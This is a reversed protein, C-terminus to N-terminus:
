GHVPVSGPRDGQHEPDHSNWRGPPQPSQWRAHKTCQQWSVITFSSKVFTSVVDARLELVVMFSKHPYVSPRNYRIKQLTSQVRCTLHHFMKSTGSGSSRHNPTERPGAPSTSLTELHSMLMRPSRPSGPFRQLVLDWYNDVPTWQCRTRTKTEEDLVM